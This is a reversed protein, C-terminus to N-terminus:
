NEIFQFYCVFWCDSWSQREASGKPSHSWRYAMADLMKQEGADIEKNGGTIASMKEINLVQM